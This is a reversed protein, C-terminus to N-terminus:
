PRRGGGGGRSGGGGGRGGGWSSASQRSANGRSSDRRVSSGNGIGEFSSPTRGGSAARTQSGRQAASGARNGQGLDRTGKQAAGAGLDRTGAQAGGTRGLDRAGAQAGGAKGLDRQAKEMGGPRALEQRGQEARGRFAERSGAGASQGRGYRNQTAKDRYDVGKRHSPDHKWQSTRNRETNRNVNRNSNFNHNIDVDIDGGHWNCNGWNSWAAGVAMGLGFSLLATGAVYGPPYYYYPPYAPYPWPGYVVTPNYTPVYIVQPSAPEITIITPPAQQVVVQTPPPAPAQEVVVKQQENSELNGEAHAKNRLRQVADMVSKQDALFADGLKQTWDLKENMMGLVQPFPVLAKVSDDWTKDQLAKALADEKLDPNEKAFRAAEVVELPYTSAMFVQALLSDPYLAIPAVIQELQEGNFTPAEAAAAPVAMSVVGVLTAVALAPRSRRLAKM